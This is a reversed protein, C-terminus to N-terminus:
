YQVRTLLGGDVVLNVGVCFSGTRGLLFAVAAAVDEATGYRGIPLKALVEEYVEPRSTRITEWAGGPFDIPGPSVTNVRIGKPALAHALASAHQVVAAKLASYSNAGAPRATDSANTTGIAVVAARESAELHPLAAEVLGAFPILDGRLSAEWSEPGKVNGASANSVLLDLGGLEGASREVFGALAAPDTVDVPEAFVTAGEARLEAAAKALGEEGRACLALACGEAALTAAIARGIGRSAGTVLAKAGTLGLDM